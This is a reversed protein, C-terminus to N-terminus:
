ELAWSARSHGRQATDLAAPRAIRPCLDPRPIGTVALSAYISRTPYGPSASENGPCASSGEFMSVGHILLPPGDATVPLQITALATTWALGFRPVLVLVLRAGLLTYAASVISENSKQPALHLESKRACKFSRTRLSVLTGCNIAMLPKSITICVELILSWVETARITGTASPFRRPICTFRSCFRRWWNQHVLGSM